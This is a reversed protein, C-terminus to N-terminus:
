TPAVAPASEVPLDARSGWEVWSRDYERVSPYGLLQTLVFWTHTSLGGRVCYTIIAQDPTIGLPEVVARLEAAGLFTGDARVTPVRWAKFAGDPHTDRQAALNIAAPIHGGRAAGATDDGAYMEASRADVLVHGTQGLSHLVDEWGARLRTDPPQAHYVTEPFQPTERSLPRGEALWKQRDGDLLRVDVHGYVKLLWFAFAALLNSLGSYLVIATAPTVGSRALLAELEERGVINSYAPDQLDTAFDWAAAGPIHGHNYAASGWEASTGWIVEVVHVSPDGLHDTVWQSTALSAPCAYESM